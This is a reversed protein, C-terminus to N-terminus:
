IPWPSKWAALPRRAVSRKRARASGGSTTNAASLRIARPASSAIRARPIRTGSPMARAAKSSMGHNTWVSGGIVAMAWGVASRARAATRASASRISPRVGCDTVRGARRTTRREHPPAADFWLLSRHGCRVPLQHGCWVLQQADFTQALGEGAHHREVVDVEVEASALHVDQEALVARSLAGEDLHEGAGVAGVVAANQGLSTLHADLARLVRFPEPDGRDVLLEVQYGIEGDGLVDEQATLRAAVPEDVVAPHALVRCLQQVPDADVHSGVGLDTFQADGPELHHLDGLREAQLGADQDHVLRGGHEGGLLDLLEERDDALQALVADPDDEDGVVQLLDGCEAVADGDEAVAAADVLDGRRGGLVFEDLEHHAAADLLLVRAFPGFVGVGCGRQQRHAPEGAVADEVVDAEVHVRALDDAEGPQDAGPPRLHRAGDEPGVRVVRAGHVYSAFAEGPVVHGGRHAAPM